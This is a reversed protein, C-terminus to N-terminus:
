QRMAIKTPKSRMLKATRVQKLQSKLVKGEQEPLPPITNEASRGSPPTVKASDLDVMWVDDPM